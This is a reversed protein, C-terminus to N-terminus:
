GATSHVNFPFDISGLYANLEHVAPGFDMSEGSDLRACIDDELTSDYITIDTDGITYAGLRKSPCENIVKQVKKLWKLEEKTLESMRM